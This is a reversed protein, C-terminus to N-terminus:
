KTPSAFRLHRISSLAGPEECVVVAEGASARKISVGDVAIDLAKWSSTQPDDFAFLSRATAVLLREGDTEVILDAIYLEAPM